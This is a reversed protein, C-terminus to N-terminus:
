APQGRWKRITPSKSSHMYGDIARVSYTVIISGIVMIAISRLM